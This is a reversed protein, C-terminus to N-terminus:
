FTQIVHWDDDAIKLIIIKNDSIVQLIEGTVFVNWMVSKPRLDNGNKNIIRVYYGNAIALDNTAGPVAGWGMFSVVLNQHAGIEIKGPKTIDALFKLGADYSKQKSYEKAISAGGDENEAASICVSLLIFLIIPLINKM